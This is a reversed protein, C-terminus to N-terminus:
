MVNIAASRSYKNDLGFLKIHIHLSFTETSAVIVPFIAKLTQHCRHSTSSLPSHLAPSCLHSQSLPGAHVTIYVGLSIFICDVNHRGHGVGALGRLRPASAALDRQGPKALRADSLLQGPQPEWSLCSNITVAWAGGGGCGSDAM